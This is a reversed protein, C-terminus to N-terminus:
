EAEQTRAHPHGSRGLEQFQAYREGLPCPADHPVGDNGCWSCARAIRTNKVLTVMPPLPKKAM